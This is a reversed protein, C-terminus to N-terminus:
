LAEYSRLYKYYFCVEFQEPFNVPFSSMFIFPLYLFPETIELSQFFFGKEGLLNIARLIGSIFGQFRRKQFVLYSGGVEKQTFAVTCQICTKTLEGECSSHIHIFKDSFKSAKPPKLSSNSKKFCICKLFEKTM